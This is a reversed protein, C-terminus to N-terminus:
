TRKEELLKTNVLDLISQGVSLPLSNPTFLVKYGWHTGLEERLLKCEETAKFEFPSQLMRINRIKFRYPYINDNWLPDSSFFGESSIEAVGHILGNVYFFIIDDNKIKNLFTTAKSGITLNAVTTALNVTKKGYCIFRFNNKM